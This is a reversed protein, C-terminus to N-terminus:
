KIDERFILDPCNKLSDYAEEKTCHYITILSNIFEEKSPYLWEESYTEQLNIPHEKKFEIDKQKVLKITEADLVDELKFM